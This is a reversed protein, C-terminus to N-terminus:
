LCKLLPLIDRNAHIKINKIINESWNANRIWKMRAGYLIKEQNGTIKHARKVFRHNQKNM